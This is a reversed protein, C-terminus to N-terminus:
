PTSAFNLRPAAERAEFSLNSPHAPLCLKAVLYNARPLIFYRVVYAALCHATATGQPVAPVGKGWAGLTSL